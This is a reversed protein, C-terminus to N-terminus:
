FNSNVLFNEYYDKIRYFDSVWKKWLSESGNRTLYSPHYTPMVLFGMKKFDLGRLKSIGYGSLFDFASCANNGMPVLIKFGRKRLWDLEEMLGPKCCTEAIKTEPASFNNNPPRCCIRNTTWNYKREVKVLSTVQNLKKSAKGVFPRGLRDEVEGAAEGMYIVIGRGKTGEGWVRNKNKFPCEDCKSMSRKFRIM